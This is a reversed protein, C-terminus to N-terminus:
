GAPTVESKYKQEWFFTEPPPILDSSLKLLTPRMFPPFLFIFFSFSKLSKKLQFCVELETLSFNRGGWRVGLSSFAWSVGGIGWLDQVSSLLMFSKESKKRRRVETKSPPCLVSPLFLNKM